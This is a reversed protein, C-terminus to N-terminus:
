PYIQRCHQFDNEQAEYTFQKLYLILVTISLSLSYLRERNQTISSIQPNKSRTQENRNKADKKM